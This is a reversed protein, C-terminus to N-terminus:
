KLITQLKKKIANAMRYFGLDTLHVGDVTGEGDNGILGKSPL